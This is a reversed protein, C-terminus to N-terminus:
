GRLRMQNAILSVLDAITKDIAHARDQARVRRDRIM